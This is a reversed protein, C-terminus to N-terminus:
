VIAMVLLSGRYLAVILAIFCDAVVSWKIARMAKDIVKCRATLQRRNYLYADESNEISDLLCNKLYLENARADDGGSHRRAYAINRDQMYGKASSGAYRFGHVSIAKTFMLWLAYTVGGWLVLAVLSLEIHSTGVMFATLGTFCTLLFGTLTYARDTSKRLQELSCNLRADARDLLNQALKISIFSRMEKSIFREEM